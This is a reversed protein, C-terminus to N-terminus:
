VRERCSARGIEDCQEFNSLTLIHTKEHWNAFVSSCPCVYTSPYDQCSEKEFHFLKESSTKAMEFQFGLDWVPNHSVFADIFSSSVQLTLASSKNEVFELTTLRLTNSSAEELEVHLIHGCSNGPHYCEPLNSASYHKKMDCETLIQHFM